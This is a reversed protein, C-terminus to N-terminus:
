EDGAERGHMAKLGLSPFLYFRPMQCFNLEFRWTASRREALESVGVPFLLILSTKDCVSMRTKHLWSVVIRQDKGFSAEDVSSAGYQILGILQVPLLQPLNENKASSDHSITM